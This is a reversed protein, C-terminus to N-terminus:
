TEPPTAPPARFFQPDLDIFMDAIRPLRPNLGSSLAAVIVQKGQRQCETILPEYDGDGTVLYVTDVNNQFTHGLADVTLQIDVGKGARNKQKTFVRPYLRDLLRARMVQGLPVYQQFQMGKIADSIEAARESNGTCYTYYTARIVVNLQPQIVGYYWAYVDPVYLVEPHPERGAKRMEQFRCVLNEGDIFAMMRGPSPTPESPPQYM